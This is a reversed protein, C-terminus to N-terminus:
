PRVNDSGGIPESCPRGDDAVPRAVELGYAKFNAVTTCHDKAFRTLKATASTLNTADKESVDKKADNLVTMLQNNKPASKGSNLNVYNVKPANERRKRQAQAAVVTAPALSETWEDLASQAAM